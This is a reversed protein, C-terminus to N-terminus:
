LRAAADPLRLDCLRRSHRPSAPWGYDELCFRDAPRFGVLKHPDTREASRCGRTQRVERGPGHYVKLIAPTTANARYMTEFDAGNVISKTAPDFGTLINDAERIPTYIEWRVGLNLTLRSNVKWNDQFYFSTETDKLDYWKRVFQASYSNAVGLFLNAADHGTFPVAGYTTGSAPDYLATARSSFAHAGQVQQQDPLVNMKSYRYRGGFMFEHKGSIKTFNQDLNYIHVISNRRNAATVYEMGLGTSTINAFGFEDFPNPLGLKDAWKESDGVNIFNLDEVGVNLSTESFLTPSFTRTWNVVGTHNRIPRFTGNAAFDLTTPSNNNGSQAYTDRVGYSYRFFLQDNDSVRHDIRTTTTWEM